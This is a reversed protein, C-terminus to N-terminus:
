KEGGRKRSLFYSIIGFIGLIYGIGGVVETVSIEKQQARKLERIEGEVESAPLENETLTYSSKHGMSANIVIKLDDKKPPKFNFQGQKNTKGDLLKNGQSDYVEILGGEVKRGDPFYSETYVTDGEVYAFINVKHAFASSTCVMVLLSLLFVLRIKRM